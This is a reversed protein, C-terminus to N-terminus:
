DLILAEVPINLEYILDIIFNDLAELDIKDPTSISIIMDVVYLVSDDVQNREKHLVCIASESGSNLSKDIAIFRPEKPNHLLFRRGDHSERYYSNTVKDILRVSSNISCSMYLLPPLFTDELQTVNPFPVENTQTARGVIDQLMKECDQEFLPKHEIPIKIIECMPPLDLEGSLYMEAEAETDLVRSPYVSSGALVFFAGNQYPDDSFVEWRNYECLKVSKGIYNEVSDLYESVVSDTTTSSSILAKFTFSSSKFRSEIRMGVESYIKLGDNSNLNGEDSVAALINKGIIHQMSSGVSVSINNRFRIIAESDIYHFPIKNGQYKHLEQSSKVKYFADCNALVNVFPILNISRAMELTANLFMFFIPAEQAIGFVAQPKKLLCVRYLVFMM